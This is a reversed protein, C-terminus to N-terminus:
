WLVFSSLVQSKLVPSLKLLLLVSTSAMVVFSTVIYMYDLDYINYTATNNQQSKHLSMM